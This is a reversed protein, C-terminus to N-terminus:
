EALDERGKVALIVVQSTCNLNPSKYTHIYGGEARRFCNMRSYDIPDSLRYQRENIDCFSGVSAGEDGAEILCDGRM